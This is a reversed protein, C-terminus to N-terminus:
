EMNLHLFLSNKKHMLILNKMKLPIMTKRYKKLYFYISEKTKNLLVSLIKFIHNNKRYKKRAETNKICNIDKLSKNMKINLQRLAMMSLVVLVNTNLDIRRWNWSNKSITWIKNIWKPFYTMEKKSNRDWYSLHHVRWKRRQVKEM